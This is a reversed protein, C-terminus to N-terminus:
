MRSSKSRLIRDEGEEGVADEGVVEEAEEGVVGVGWKCFAHM